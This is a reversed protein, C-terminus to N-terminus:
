RRNEALAAVLREIDADTVHLHPAIRIVDGRLSLYVNKATLETIADAAATSLLRVGFMHGLQFETFM